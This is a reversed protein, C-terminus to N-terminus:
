DTSAKQKIILLILTEFWAKRSIKETHRSDSSPALGHHTGMDGDGIQATVLLRGKTGERENPNKVTHAKTGVDQFVESKPDCWRPALAEGQTGREKGLKVM